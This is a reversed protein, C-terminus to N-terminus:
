NTQKRVESYYNIIVGSLCGFFILGYITLLVSTLRGILTVALFDGYGVTTSTVFAYWLGDEYRVIGPEVFLLVFASLFIFTVFSVAFKMFGTEKLIHILLKFRKM